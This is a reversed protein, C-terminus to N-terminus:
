RSERAKWPPESSRGAIFREALEDAAQIEDRGFGAEERAQVAVRVHAGETGERGMVERFAQAARSLAAGMALLQRPDRARLEAIATNAFRVHQVEDALQAEFLTRLEDDAERVADAIGTEVADIGGAEFSRNQVTLRGVLTDIATIIRYQFNL